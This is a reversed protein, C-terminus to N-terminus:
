PHGGESEEPLKLPDRPHPDGVQSAAQPDHYPHTARPRGLFADSYSDSASLENRGGRAIPGRFSLASVCVLGAVLIVMTIWSTWRLVISLLTMAASVALVAGILWRRVRIRMM